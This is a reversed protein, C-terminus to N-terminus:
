SRGPGSRGRPVIARLRKLMSRGRRAVRYSRSTTIRRLRADLAATKRRATELQRELRRREKALARGEARTAGLERGLRSLEAYAAELGAELECIRDESAHFAGLMLAFHREFDTQPYSPEAPAMRPDSGTFGIVERRMRAALNRPGTMIAASAAAAQVEVPHSDHEWISEVRQRASWHLSGSNYSKSITGVDVGLFGASDIIRFDHPRGLWEAIGIARAWATSSTLGLIGGTRRLQANWCMDLLVDLVLPSGAPAGFFWVGVYGTAPSPLWRAPGRQIIFPRPDALLRDLFPRLPQFKMDCWVGGFAYVVAARLLDSRMSAFHMSEQLAQLDIGEIEALRRGFDPRRWLVVLYDPHTAEWAALHSKVEEPIAADDPDDWYLHVVRPIVDHSRRAVVQAFVEDTVSLAM